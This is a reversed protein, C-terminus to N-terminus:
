AEVKRLYRLAPKKSISDTMKTPKDSILQEAVRRSAKNDEAVVAEVYFAKQKHKPM